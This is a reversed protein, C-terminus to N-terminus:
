TQVWGVAECWTWTAFADPREAWADIAAEVAEVTAQDMWGEALATRAAGQLQAKMFVAHRRTAELSGASSVSATAETRVFGAELLLRRHHRGRFPDGGHHQDGQVAVAIGQEILPVTPVRLWTGWDPDRVGVIGGPRLVRRLEALARVPERLGIVVTHAFAADFAGDPFPLTYLDAVEFGVNPVGRTAALARAQEVQAPQLDIGVVEGPAVVEALGLTISGPGCGVDLVRMGPRLYALFFAAANSVTRTALVAEFAPNARQIYDTAGPMSTSAQPCAHDTM